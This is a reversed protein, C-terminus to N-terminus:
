HKLFGELDQQLQVLTRRNWRPDWASSEHAEDTELYAPRVWDSSAVKPVSHALLAMDFTHFSLGVHDGVAWAVTASMSTSENLELLLEAGIRVATASEIMAGSSSINRIRVPNSEYDHHLVGNWILPHRQASRRQAEDADV